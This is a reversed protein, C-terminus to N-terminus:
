FSKKIAEVLLTQNQELSTQSIVTFLQPYEKKMALANDVQHATSQTELPIVICPKQFFLAEFLTGAGARCIILDAANYYLAMTDSYAFVRSPINLETYFSKWNYSDNNGTQHIVQIKTQLTADDAVSKMLNNIFVSGQSGGLVLITKKDPFLHLSELAKKQSIKDTQVFALPYETWTTKKLDFNNRAQKFPVKITNCLPALIKTAKGPTANLEYLEIPINLMKAALCVPLSIYGGMSFIKSPKETRLIFFNQLTAMFIKYCYWPYFLFNKPINALAIRIHKDVVTSQQIIKKDLEHTTSIFIIKACGEKKAQHALTLAPKIHGGSRGAVFCITNKKEIKTHEMSRNDKHM